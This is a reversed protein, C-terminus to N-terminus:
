WYSMWGGVHSGDADLFLLTIINAVLTFFHWYMMKYIFFMNSTTLDLLFEFFIRQDWTHM